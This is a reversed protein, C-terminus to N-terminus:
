NEGSNEEPVFGDNKIATDILETIMAYMSLGKSDAYKKWIEYKEVKVNVGVKKYSTSLCKQARKTSKEQSKKQNDM